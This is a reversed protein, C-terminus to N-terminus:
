LLENSTALALFVVKVKLISEEGVSAEDPVILSVSFTTALKLTNTASETILPLNTLVSPLKIGSFLLYPTETSIHLSFPKPLQDGIPESPVNETFTGFPM